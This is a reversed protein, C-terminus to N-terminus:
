ACIISRVKYAQRTSSTQLLGDGRWLGKASKEGRRKNWGRGGEGGGARGGEKGGESGGAEAEIWDCGPVLLLRCNGGGEADGGEAEKEGDEGEM